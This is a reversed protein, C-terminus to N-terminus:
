CIRLEPGDILQCAEGGKLCVDQKGSGGVYTWESTRGGISGTSLEVSM